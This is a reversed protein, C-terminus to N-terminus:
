EQEISNVLLGNKKKESIDLEFFFYFNSGSRGDWRLEM